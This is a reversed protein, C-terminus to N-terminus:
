SPIPNTSDVIGSYIEALPITLNLSEIPLIADPADYRALVWLADVRRYVEIRQIEQDVLVYEQFSPLERYLTFKSGYDYDRNSPSLIEIIVKPNTITDAHEDTVAPKGCVVALDPYVFKSPRIRVRVSSLTSCPEELREDLRRGLRVSLRAHSVTANTIPYLLGDRYESKVEAVRDLALYDEVSLHPVAWASM